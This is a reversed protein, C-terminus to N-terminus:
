HREGVPAGPARGDAIAEPRHFLALQLSEAIRHAKACLQRAASPEFLEEVTRDWLMLWREFMAPTIRFKLHAAMPNGKYRGSALVVSSWFAALKLLHADWDHIAVNFLPGIEPDRRVRAYFRGVLTALESELIAPSLSM